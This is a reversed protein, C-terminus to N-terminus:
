KFKVGCTPCSRPHDEGLELLWRQGCRGCRGEEGLHRACHPCREPTSEGAELLWGKGCHPCLQKVEPPASQKAPKPASQPAREPQYETLGDGEQHLAEGQEQGAPAPASPASQPAREQLLGAQRLTDSIVSSSAGTQRTIERWPAKAKYLEVIQQRQQENRAGM